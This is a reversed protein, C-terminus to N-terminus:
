LQSIGFCPPFVIDILVNCILRDLNAGVTVKKHVRIKRARVRACFCKVLVFILSQLYFIQRTRLHTRLSRSAEDFQSTFAVYTLFQM